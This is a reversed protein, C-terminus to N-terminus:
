TTERSLDVHAAPVPTDFATWGMDWRYFATAGGVLCSILKIWGNSCWLYCAHVLQLPQDAFGFWTLNHKIWYAIQLAAPGDVLQAYNFLHAEVTITDDFRTFNYSILLCLIIGCLGGAVLVWASAKLFRLFTLFARSAHYVPNNNNIKLQRKAIKTRTLRPTKATNRLGNGSRM